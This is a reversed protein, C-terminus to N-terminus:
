ANKAIFVPWSKIRNRLGGSKGSKKAAVRVKDHYHYEDLIDEVGSCPLFPRDFMALRKLLLAWFPFCAIILGMIVAAAHVRGAPLVACIRHGTPSLRRDPRRRPPPWTTTTRCACSTLSAQAKAVQAATVNSLGIHRVLRKRRLVAVAGDQDRPPGWVGPGALQM